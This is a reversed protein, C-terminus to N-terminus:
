QRHQGYGAGVGSLMGISFTVPLHNNPFALDDVIENNKKVCM